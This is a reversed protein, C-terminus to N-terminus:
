WHRLMNQCFRMRPESDVFIKKRPLWKQNQLRQAKSRASRLACMLACRAFRSQDAQRSQEHV